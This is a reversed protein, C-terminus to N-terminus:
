TYTQNRGIPRVRGVIDRNKNVFFLRINLYYSISLFVVFQKVRWRKLSNSGYVSLYFAM